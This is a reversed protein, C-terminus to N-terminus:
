FENRLQAGIASLDHVGAKAEGLRGNARLLDTSTFPEPAWLGFM